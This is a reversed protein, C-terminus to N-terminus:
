CMLYISTRLYDNGHARIQHSFAAKANVPASVEEEKRLEPLRQIIAKSQEGVCHVGKNAIIADNVQNQFSPNPSGSWRSITVKGPSSREYFAIEAKKSTELTFIFVRRTTLDKEIGSLKDIVTEADGYLSIVEPSWSQAECGEGSLMTMKAM